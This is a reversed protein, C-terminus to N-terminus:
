PPPPPPPDPPPPSPPEWPEPPPVPPTGPVSPAPAGPPPPPPLPAEGPGPPPQSPIPAHRRRRRILLALVILVIIVALIPLLIWWYDSLFGGAIPQDLPSLEVNDVTEVLDNKDIAIKESKWLKFGSATVEVKYEGYELGEFEFTGDSGTKRTDLLNNNKDLLNVTAGEMAEGDPKRVTGSIKGNTNLILTGLDEDEGSTLDFVRTAIKYNIKEITVNYDNGAKVNEFRFAGTANSITNTVEHGTSNRLTVTAGVIVEGNEDVVLGSITGTIEITTITWPNPVSGPELPNGATDNAFLVRLEYPSLSSFNNHTGTATTNGNSWTWDWGGPEPASSFRFTSTDIPESFTIVVDKDLPIDSSGDAPDANTVRPSIIDATTWSWPNPVPGSGLPNGAVDTASTVTLTYTALSAFPNHTGTVTTNALNWNWVLNGPNPSIFAGFSSRNM